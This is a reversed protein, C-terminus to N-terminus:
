NVIYKGPKLVQGDSKLQSELAEIRKDRAVVDQALKQEQSLLHAIKAAAETRRTRFDQAKSSKFKDRIVAKLDKGVFTKLLLSDDKGTHVENFDTGNIESELIRLIDVDKDTIMEDDGGKVNWPTTDDYPQTSRGDEGRGVSVHIHTDHPDSGYYPTWRMGTHTGGIRGNSIIYKLDPHPNALLQDALQHINLGGGPGIDLACVVGASNPNHDSAVVAHNQDGLFGLFLWGPYASDLQSKLMALSNAPRWSM